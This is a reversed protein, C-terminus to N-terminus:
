VKNEEVIQSIRISLTAGSGAAAMPGGLGAQRCSVGLYVFFSHAGAALTPIRVLLPMSVIAQRGGPYAGEFVPALTQFDLSDSTGDVLVPNGDVYLNLTFIANTVVSNSSVLVGEVIAMFKVPAGTTTLNMVPGTMSIGSDSAPISVSTQGSKSSSLATAAEVELHETRVTRVALADGVVTGNVLLNGNLVMGPAIWNAGDWVRTEAFSSNNSITVEDGIIRLSSGTSSLVIANAAADDWVSGVTNFRVSGRVGSQGDSVIPIVQEDLLSVTGGATYSRVRLSKIGAPIAYVTSLEDAASTYQDTFAVGDISTAIIFRGAYGSPASSGVGRYIASTISTPNYTGAVDKAVVNASTVLKYAAGDAGDAGNAGNIGAKAKTVTFTRSISPYGGRSATIVVTGVDASMATVTQTRSTSGETCTVNTKVANFTWNATDDTTGSYVSMTTAAGFFSTVTGAADAPVTQAENSLIGMLGSAGAAGTAGDTVVTLTQEDLKVTTGGALYARVRVAKTNVPIVYNKTSENGASTYQDTYNVGDTTVAIIFRGAYPAPNGNGTASLINLDVSAPTFVGGISKAIAPVSATLWWATANQGAAGAAGKVKTVNFRKTQTPYSARTAVIDIYGADASMATVTQTRSTTAETCTVNTKTVAYTWNSSDDTTGVFVSMTTAAGAFSLVTGASDAPVSASENSLVATVTNGGNQGDFVKAVVLDSTYTVGTDTVSARITATNTTMDAYNFSRSNGSGTLATITGNVISFVVTGNVQTLRATVSKTSTSPTGSADVKFFPSDDATLNIGKLVPIFVNSGLTVNTLRAPAAQLLM